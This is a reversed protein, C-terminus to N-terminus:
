EPSQYQELIPTLGCEDFIRIIKERKDFDRLGYIQLLVGNDKFMQKCTKILQKQKQIQTKNDRTFRRKEEISKKIEITTVCYQHLTLGSKELYQKLYKGRPSSCRFSAIPASGSLYFTGIYLFLNRCNSTKYWAGILRDGFERIDQKNLDTLMISM